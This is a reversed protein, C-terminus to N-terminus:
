TGSDGVQAVQQSPTLRVVIEARRNKRRGEATDNSAVPRTDGCGTVLLKDAAFGESEVLYRVVSVARACSLDWNSKYSSYRIPVNDTHGRVEVENGPYSSRVMQAAEKLANKGEKTLDARGSAFLVESLVTYTVTDGTRTVQVEGDSTSTAGAGAGKRANEYAELVAKQQAREKELLADRDKLAQDKSALEQSLRDAEASAEALAGEDLDPSFYQDATVAGAVAGVGFGVVGGALGGASTALEGITAGAVTGVSGGIATGKQVPTCGAAAVVAVILGTIWIRGTM